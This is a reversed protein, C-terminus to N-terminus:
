KIYTEVLNNIRGEVDILDISLVIMNSELKMKDLKEKLENFSKCDIFIDYINDFLKFSDPP